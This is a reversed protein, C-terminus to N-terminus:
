QHANSITIPRTSTYGIAGRMGFIAFSVLVILSLIYQVYYRKLSIVKQLPNRYLKWMAFIMVFALLFLYWHNILEYGVIKGINNENEFENFVKSTVRHKSFPYYVSDMLNIVIAISNIIVFLWKMIKHYIATEKVHCPFVVCVIYLINTYCIASIDFILGGRFLNLCDGSGWEITFLSLNELLFEIRCIMYIVLVLAM